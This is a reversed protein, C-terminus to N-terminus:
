ARRHFKDDLHRGCIRTVPHVLDTKVRNFLGLLMESREAAHKLAERKWKAFRDMDQVAKDQGSALTPYDYLISM